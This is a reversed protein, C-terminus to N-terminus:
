DGKWEKGPVYYPKPRPMPAPKKATLAATLKALSDEYHTMKVALNHFEKLQHSLGVAHANVFVWNGHRGTIKDVQLAGKKHMSGELKLLLYKGLGMPWRLRCDNVVTAFEKVLGNVKTVKNDIQIEDTSFMAHIVPEPSLGEEKQIKVDALGAVALLLDGISSLAKGHGKAVADEISDEAAVAYAKLSMYNDAIKSYKGQITKFTKDAFSEVTETIELLLARQAGTLNERARAAVAKMETEGKQIAVIIAKNMDAEMAAHQDRLLKRELEGTQIHASTVGTLTELGEEVKKHNAAITTALTTLRDEFDAKANAINELSKKSYQTIQYQSDENAAILDKQQDDLASYMSKTADTLDKKAAAADAAAQSRIKALKQNFLNDLEVVEEHAVRKNEDMIARLKGRAQVSHSSQDNMLNEIRDIEAKVHRNVTKQMAQHDILEGSVLMVESMLRSDMEKVSATIAALGTAFTQRAEKVQKRAQVRAAKIDKVTKEFREDALAANKAISDNIDTVAAGLENDISARQEAMKEYLDGYRKNALEESKEFESQVHAHVAKWQTASLKDAKRVKKKNNKKSTKIAEKLTKMQAKMDAKTDKVQKKLETAYADVKTNTKKIKDMTYYRLSLLSREMTLTADKVQQAAFQAEHEIKNAIAERDKAAKQKEIEQADEVEAFAATAVDKADHINKHAEEAMSRIAYLLEKKMEERAEKSQLRLGEIQGSARKRLNSIETTVKANLAAKTKSNLTTLHNQAQSMRAEGKRIADRVADQLEVKNADMITKLNKRGAENKIADERVIGTLKDIKKEFKKDNDIVTKHLAGLRASFDNKAEHLADAIDLKAQRTQQALAENTAAQERENKAIAAYLAATKKALMHSAHARNKKMTSRVENLEMVYHRQMAKLRADTAEKNKEIIGKLEKDKAVHEAYRKNGLEVMRKMEANVNANIKAQALKNKTVTNSVQDIRINTKRVQENVTSTLAFLRTKFDQKAQNIRDDAEKKTAAIDSLTQKFRADNIAAQANLAADMKQSAQKLEMDAHHRDEEMKKRIRGFHAATQLM